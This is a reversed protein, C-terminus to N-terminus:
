CCQCEDDCEGICLYHENLDCEDDLSLECVIGTHHEYKCKCKNHCCTNCEQCECKAMLPESVPYEFALGLRTPDDTIVEYLAKINPRDNSRALGEDVGYKKVVESTRYLCEQIERFAIEKRCGFVRLYLNPYRSVKQWISFSLEVYNTITQYEYESSVDGDEDVGWIAVESYILQNGFLELKEVVGKIQEAVRYSNPIDLDPNIQPAVVSYWQDHIVDLWRTMAFSLSRVLLQQGSAYWFRRERDIVEQAETLLQDDDAMSM